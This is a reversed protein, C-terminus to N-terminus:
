EAELLFSYWSYNRPPLLPRHTPSVVKGGENMHRNDQFGPVGLAKRPRYHSQNVKVKVKNNINHRLNIHVYFQQSSM